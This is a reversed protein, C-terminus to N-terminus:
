SYFTALDSQEKEALDLWNILEQLAAKDWEDFDEEENDSLNEIRSKDLKARLAAIEANTLYGMFPFDDPEPLPVPAGRSTFFEKTSFDGAAIGLDALNKDTADFAALRISCWSDHFPQTGLHECLMKLAYGYKFGYAPDRERGLILDALAGGTSLERIPEDDLEDDDDDGEFMRQLFSELSSAIEAEDCNQLVAKLENAESEYLVEMARPDIGVSQFAAKIEGYEPDDVSILDDDSSDQSPRIVHRYSFDGKSYAAYEAELEPEFEEFYEGIADIELMEEANAAIIEQLLRTDNSGVAQQVDSIKVVIPTLTYSM